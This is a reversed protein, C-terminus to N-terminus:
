AQGTKTADISELVRQRYANNIQQMLVEAEKPKDPFWFVKYWVTDYLILAPAAWWPVQGFCALGILFLYCLLRAINIYYM